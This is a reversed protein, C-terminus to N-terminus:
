IYLFSLGIFAAFDKGTEGITTEFGDESTFNDHLSSSSQRSPSGFLPHASIKKLKGTDGICPQKLGNESYFVVSEFFGPDRSVQVTDM